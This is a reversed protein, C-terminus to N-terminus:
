VVEKILKVADCAFTACLNTQHSINRFDSLSKHQWKHKWFDLMQDLNGIYKVKHANKVQCEYIRANDLYNDEKFGRAKNIDNFVFLKTRKKRPTVFKSVKYETLFQDSFDSNTSMASYFKGQDPIVVKYFM